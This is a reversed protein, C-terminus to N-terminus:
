CTHGIRKRRRRKPAASRPGSISFTALRPDLFSTLATDSIRLALLADEISDFLPVNERKRRELENFLYEISTSRQMWLESSRISDAKYLRQMITEEWTRGEMLDKTKLSLKTSLSVLEIWMPAEPPDREYAWKIIRDPTAINGWLSDEKMAIKHIQELSYLQGGEPGPTLFLEKVLNKVIKEIACMRQIRTKTM